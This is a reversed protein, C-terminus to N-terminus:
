AEPRPIELSKQISASVAGGSLNIELKANVPKVIDGANEVVMLVIKELRGTLEHRNGKGDKVTVM